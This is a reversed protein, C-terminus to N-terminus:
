LATIPLTYILGRKKSTIIAEDGMHQWLGFTHGVKGREETCQFSIVAIVLGSKLRKRSYVLNFKGLSFYPSFQM